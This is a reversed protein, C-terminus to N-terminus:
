AIQPLVEEGFRRIAEVGERPTTWPSTLVRHVGLDRYRKLTDADAQSGMHQVTVEFPGDRGAEARLDAIRKLSAPLTELTQNMPLWGDGLRAARRIAAPADGGILMPPWPKQVPKPQFKVPQFKFFEGEHSVEDETFLRKIVGIAEDVRRGRGDFPLEMAQWEQALWSAGIGFEIRGRSVMDATVLGRATIFPHRLGINFVNTGLRITTSQAALYGILVWPDWVPTDSPIPPHGEDPTGPKGSMQVPLILHEPIWVSDFGAQEAAQTFDVWNRPGVMLTIGVKM